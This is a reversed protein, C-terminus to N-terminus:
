TRRARRTTRSSEPRARTSFARPRKAEIVAALEQNEALSTSGGTFLLVVKTRGLYAALKARGGTQTTLLFSPAPRLNKLVAVPRPRQRRTKEQDLRWIVLGTIVTEKELDLSAPLPAAQDPAACGAATPATM